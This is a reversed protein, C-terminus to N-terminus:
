RPFVDSLHGVFVASYDLDDTGWDTEKMEDGTFVVNIAKQAVEAPTVARVHHVGDVSLDRDYLCVTYDQHM